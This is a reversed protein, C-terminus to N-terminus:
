DFIMKARPCIILLVPRPPAVTLVTLPATKAHMISRCWADYYHAYYLYPILLWCNSHVAM